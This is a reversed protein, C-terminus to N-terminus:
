RLERTHSGESEQRLRDLLAFLAEGDDAEDARVLLVPAGAQQALDRAADAVSARSHRGEWGAVVVSTPGAPLAGSAGAPQVRVEIRVQALQEVVTAVRRAERRDAPEVFRLPVGLGVALRLATSIAAAGDRGGGPLVTVPGAAAIVGGGGEDALAVLQCPVLRALDEFLVASSGEALATVPVRVLVVDAEIAAVQTLLDRVADQSFQFRVAAPVGAGEARRALVHLAGMAEAIDALEGVLGGGLEVQQAPVTFRSLVVERPDETGTLAVALDVDPGSLDPDEVVLVVRYADVLGLSAREAEAIDKALVKDSYVLRLLPETLVTTVVAMIVLITFLQQDLIGLGVGVNLIILETLGRTNMLVGLAVARRPRVGFGRAAVATGFFKGVCAVVLVAVFQLAGRAGLHRVDTGLGTIIFFVPLLLLVSVQELRELIEHFLEATGERPMIVGFIFAGFIAHVGLKSTAYSSLLFGVIVVALLNPTLRGAARYREVLLHLRPRVVGLMVAVFAVLEALTRLLGGAGSSASVAVVVALALWALLDDLAACALSLAGLEIRAMGRDTLIRALVPF